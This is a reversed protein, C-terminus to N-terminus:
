PQGSSTNEKVVKTTEHAERVLTQHVEQKDEKGPATGLPGSVEDRPYYATTPEMRDDPTYRARVYEVTQAQLEDPTTLTSRDAQPM